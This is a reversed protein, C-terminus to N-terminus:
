MHGCWSLPNYITTRGSVFLLPHSFEMAGFSSFRVIVEVHDYLVRRATETYTSYRCKFVASPAYGMADHIEKLHDKQVQFADKM